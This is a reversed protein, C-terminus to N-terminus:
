GVARERGTWFQDRVARKLLKGVNSRPLEPWVDVSKPTKVSGLRDKCLAIIEDPDVSQGSKPEIVAKVAEGWKDDPVGIVACDQVAPHSLIVKEVEASYVNFGGTIIMDKKRDVHFVYGDEDAYGIDGTHHWGHASAEATAEPNKYYGAMIMSGNVVIEGPQGPPLLQGQDDMIGLRTLMTTRGCSWLRKRLAPDTAAEVHEQASLMTCFMPAEAQGYSQVMVPGFVELAEALKDAAMPAAAYLFCRLSSYDFERVRPHSLMMYIATPPLFLHTVQHAEIAQMVEVPDFHDLVVTTAGAPILTMALVGAAHTMPASVLHVPPTSPDQHIWFTAIMTEWVRHTWVVGKPRGTTGGTSLISVQRDPDDPIEPVTGDGARIFEDLPCIGAQGQDIGIVEALSPVHTQFTPVDDCLASHVFLGECDTNDLIYANEEVANRANLPVWTRGAAFVALVCLFAEVNNPSYVAIHANESFRADIASAIETVRRRAEEFSYQQTQSLFATRTPFREAARLFGDYIRM